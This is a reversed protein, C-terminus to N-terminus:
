TSFCSGTIVFPYIRGLEVDNIVTNAYGYTYTLKITLRLDYKYAVIKLIKDWAGFSSMNTFSDSNKPIRRQHILM